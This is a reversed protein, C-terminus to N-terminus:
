QLPRRLRPGWTQRNAHRPCGSQMALPFHVFAALSSAHCPILYTVSNCPHNNAIWFSQLPTIPTGTELHFPTERFFRPSYFAVDIM